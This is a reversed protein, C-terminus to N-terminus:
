TGISKPLMQCISMAVTSGQKLTLVCHLSSVEIFLVFAKTEVPRPFVELLIPGFIQTGVSHGNNYGSLNWQITLFHDGHM